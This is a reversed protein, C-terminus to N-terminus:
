RDIQQNIQAVEAELVETSGGRSKLAGVQKSLSNKKARFQQVSTEDARRQRDFNLLESIKVDLEEGGGRTALRERVFDPKERILRIDLMPRNYLACQKAAFTLYLHDGVAM